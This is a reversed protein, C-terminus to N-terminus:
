KTKMIFVGNWDEPPPSEAFGQARNYFVDVLKDVPYISKASGFHQKAREFDRGIYAHYGQTYETVFTQMRDPIQGTRGILEYTQVPKTKGKVVLLEVPRSVFTDRVLQETNQGILIDTGFQKNASELRSALNVGEGVVTYDKKRTSGFNGVIV